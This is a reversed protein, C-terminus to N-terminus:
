ASMRIYAISGYDTLYTTGDGLYSRDMKVRLYTFNGNINYAETGTFGDTGTTPLTKFGGANVSQGGPIQIPFYDADTPTLSLTGEVTVRGKFAAYQIAITHMGDSYGYYSDGEVKDTTLNM